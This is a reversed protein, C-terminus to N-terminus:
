LVDLIAAALRPINSSNAGAINIRGSKTMYVSHEARLRKVQEVSLPLTSFMGNQDIIADAMAEAGQVRLADSLDKRLQKIRDRMETLEELWVARLKADGLIRAVLAAGHDPPMSTLRRQLAGLQGQVVKAQDATSTIAAVLGVREKYLAFNKSCSAALILEPCTVGIKRLGYTDHELGDGLGFYALDIFPILEHDRMFEAARDWEAPALDAGTPNHCCGHFVVVDGATANAKLHELMDEFDVGLTERNYYPYSKITLGVSGILPEHNAWTPTPVWVVPDKGSSKILEAGIRLAGSGGTAQASAIRNENLPAFNDGFILDLMHTRFDSNGVTSVYSKTTEETLYLGEAQKVARMIPTAGDDTKYVGVGLDIKNPNKDAKALEMLAIIADPPRAILSEFM